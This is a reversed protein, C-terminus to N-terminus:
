FVERFRLLTRRFARRREALLAPDAGYYGRLAEDTGFPAPGDEPFLSLWQDVTRFREPGLRESLRELARRRQGQLRDEILLLEEPNNFSMVEEARSSALVTARFSPGAGGGDALLVAGVADTLYDEGQANDRNMHNLGYRLAAKRILYVSENHYRAQLAEAASVAHGNPG